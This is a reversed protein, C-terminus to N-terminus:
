MFNFSMSPWDAPLIKYRSQLFDLKTVAAKIAPMWSKIYLQVISTYVTNRRRYTRKESLGM